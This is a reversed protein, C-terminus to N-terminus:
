RHGPDEPRDRGGRGRKGRSPIPVPAFAVELFRRLCKGFGPGYEVKAVGDGDPAPLWVAFAARGGGGRRVVLAGENPALALVESVAGLAALAAEETRYDTGEPTVFPFSAKGSALQLLELLRWLDDVDLNDFAERVTM